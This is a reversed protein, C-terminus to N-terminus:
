HTVNCFQSFSDSGFGIFGWQVTHLDRGRGVCVALFECVKGARM